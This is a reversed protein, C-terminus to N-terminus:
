FNDLDLNSHARVYNKILDILLEKGGIKIGKGILKEADELAMVIGIKIQILKLECSKWLTAAAELARHVRNRENPNANEGNFGRVEEAAEALGQAIEQYDPRNHGLPVRRDSAPISEADLHPHDAIINEAAEFGKGTLSFKPKAGSKVVVMENERLHRLSRQIFAAGIALGSRQKVEESTFYEDDDSEQILRYLAVLAAGQSEIFSTM